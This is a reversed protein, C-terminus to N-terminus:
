YNLIINPLLVTIELSSPSCIFWQGETTPFIQSVTVKPRQCCNGHDEGSGRSLLKVTGRTPKFYSYVILHKDKMGPAFFVLYLVLGILPMWSFQTPCYDYAWTLDGPLYTDNCPGAASRWPEEYNAPLCSGNVASQYSDTYCYGCSLDQMCGDCHSFSIDCSFLSVHKFHMYFTRKVCPLRM